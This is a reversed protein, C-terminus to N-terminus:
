KIRKSYIESAKLYPVYKDLFRWNKRKWASENFIENVRSFYTMIRNLINLQNEGLENVPYSLWTLAILSNLELLYEIDKNSQPLKELFIKLKNDLFKSVMENSLKKSLSLYKPDDFIESAKMFLRSLYVYDPLQNTLSWKKSAISYYHHVGRSNGAMLALFDICQKVKKEFSSDKLYKLSDLLYILAISIRDTFVKKVLAPEPTLARDEESLSYYSTDAVQFSIFTNASSDFLKSSLYSVTKLAADQLMKSQEIENIKLILLIAAANVDIMKEYHPIEWRRTEAYRFFGGDVSDYINQVAKKMTGSVYKFSSNNKGTHSKELLYLFTAPMLYKIGSGIGYEEKDFNELVTEIFTNQLLEIKNLQTKDPPSYFEEEITDRYDKSTEKVTQADKYVTKLFGLFDDAYLTGSYKYFVTGDPKMIVIYPLGAAQFKVYLDRRIEVDIFINVFHENLFKYVKEKILTKEFFIKCWHCWEASFLIFIPKKQRKALEFSAPTYNLFKVPLEEHEFAISSSFPFCILILILFLNQFKLRIM